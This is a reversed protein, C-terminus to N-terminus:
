GNQKRRKKLKTEKKIAKDFIDENQARTTISDFTWYEDGYLEVLYKLMSRRQGLAEKKLEARKLKTEVKILQRRLKIVEKDQTILDAIKKDSVKEDEDFYENLNERIERAKKAELENLDEKLNMKKEYLKPIIKSHAYFIEAQDQAEEELRFRDIKIDKSIKRKEM